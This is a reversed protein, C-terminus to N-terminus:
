PALLVLFGFVRGYSGCQFCLFYYKSSSGGWFSWWMLPGVFM